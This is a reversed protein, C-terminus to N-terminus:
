APPAGEAEEEAHERGEESRHIGTVAYIGIARAKGRIPTEGIRELRVSDDLTRAVDESVLIATEWREKFQKCIEGIRAATNVTDGAATYNWKRDAGMNGVIAPGSHVAVGIRFTPNGTAEWKANLGPLLERMVLASLVASRPHDQTETGFCGWLAMIGDGIFKDVLGGTRFVAGVMANFYETMQEVLMQPDAGEFITTFSRVDTFMVTVDRRTGGLSLDDPNRALHEALEPSVYSAFVDVMRERMRSETLLRDSLAIAVCVIAAAARTGLSLVVNGYWFAAAYIAVTGVLLAAVVAVGVVVRRWWVIWAALVGIALVTVYVTLSPESRLPPTSLITNVVNANTEVGFMRGEPGRYPAPRIDCLGAATAGVLVIKGAFVESAVEGAFVDAASVSPTTGAPGSYHVLMEGGELPLSRGDPTLARPFGAYFEDPTAGAAVRAVETAFGPYLRGDSGVYCPRAHRCRGDGDEVLNAFGVGAAAQVLPLLPPMFSLPDAPAGAPSDPAEALHAQLAALRRAMEKSVVRDTQISVPLVVNGADRVAEALLADGEPDDADPELFLVDVGIARAGPINAIIRAFVRRPWPFRGLASEDVSLDDIEVLLVNEMHPPNPRYRNCTDYAIQEVTSFVGPWRWFVVCIMASVAFSAQLSRARREAMKSKGTRGHGAM